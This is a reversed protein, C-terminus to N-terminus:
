PVSIAVAVPWQGPQFAVARVVYSNCYASDFSSVKQTGTAYPTTIQDAIGTM